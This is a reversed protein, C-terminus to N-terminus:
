DCSFIGDFYWEGKIKIMCNEVNKEKKQFDYVIIAAIDSRKKISISSLSGYKFASRISSPGNFLYKWLWTDEDHLLQKIESSTYYSDIFHLGSVPVYRLVYDADGNAVAEAIGESISCLLEMGNEAHCVVPNSRASDLGSEDACGYLPLFAVLLFVSNHLYSRHYRLEM